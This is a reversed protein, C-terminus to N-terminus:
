VWENDGGPIYIPFGRLRPVMNIDMPRESVRHVASVDADLQALVAVLIATQGEDLDARLDGVQVYVADGSSNIGIEITLSPWTRKFVAGAKMGRKMIVAAQARSQCV